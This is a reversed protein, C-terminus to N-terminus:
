QLEGIRKRYEETSLEDRAYREALVERARDTPDRPASGGPWTATRALWVVFVLFLTMMLVGGMWMWAGGWGNMHFGDADALVAFRFFFTM